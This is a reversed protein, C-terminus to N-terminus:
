HMRWPSFYLRAMQQHRQKGMFDHEGIEKAFILLWGFSWQKEMPKLRRSCSTPNIMLVASAHFRVKCFNFFYSFSPQM